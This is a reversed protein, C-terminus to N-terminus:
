MKGRKSLPVVLKEGTHTPSFRVVKTATLGAGKGAAFIDVDAVGPTGKPHIVWLAGDPKLAGALEAIRALDAPRSIGFVIVDSEKAARGTFFHPVRVSLQRLFAADDIALISVLSGPKIGMKDILSKPTRIREAWREAADGLTLVAKGDAHTITLRGRAADVATVQNFPIKLRFDGRFILEDTELLAKGESTTKGVRATCRAEYGM